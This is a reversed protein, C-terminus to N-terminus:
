IFNREKRFKIKHQSTQTGPISSSFYNLALFVFANFIIWGCLLSDNTPIATIHMEGNLEIQKRGHEWSYKHVDSPTESEIELMNRVSHGAKGSHVIESQLSIM